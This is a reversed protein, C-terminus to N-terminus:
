YILNFSVFWQNHNPPCGLEQKFSGTNVIVNQRQKTSGHVRLEERKPEMIDCYSQSSSPNQKVQIFVLIM